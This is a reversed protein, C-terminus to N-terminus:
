EPKMVQEKVEVIENEEIQNLNKGNYKWQTRGNEEGGAVVAAAYIPSSFIYDKEFIYLTGNPNKKIISDKELQNRMKIIPEGASNRNEIVATSGKLVIFKEDEIKMKASADKIKFQFIREEVKELEKQVNKQSELIDIGVSAIILKVGNLIQKM